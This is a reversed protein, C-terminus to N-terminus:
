QNPIKYSKAIINLYDRPVVNLGGVAVTLDLGMWEQKYANQVLESLKIKLQAIENEAIPKSREFLGPLELEKNQITVATQMVGLISATATDTMRSHYEKQFKESTGMGLLKMGRVYDMSHHLKVTALFEAASAPSQSRIDNWVDLNFRDLSFYTEVLKAGTYVVSGHKADSDLRERRRHLLMDRKGLSGLKSWELINLQIDKKNLDWGDRDHKRVHQGTPFILNGHEYDFTLPGSLIGLHLYTDLSEYGSGGFGTCGHHSTDTTIVLVPEKPHSALEDSLQRVKKELDTEELMGAIIFFDRIKDGTGKGKRIDSQIKRFEDAKKKQLAEEQKSLDGLKQLQEKVPM